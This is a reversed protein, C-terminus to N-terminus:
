LENGNDNYGYNSNHNVDTETNKWTENSSFTYFLEYNGPPISNEDCTTM